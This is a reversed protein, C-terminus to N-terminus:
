VDRGEDMIVAEWNGSNSSNLAADLCAQTHLGDLSGAIESEEGRVAKIFAAIIGTVPHDSEPDIHGMNMRHTPGGKEQHILDHERGQLIRLVGETGYVVTSNDQEGYNTWSTYMTGFAGCDTQFISVANDDVDIMEGEPNKKDLTLLTSVVRTVRTDLLFRALDFKHTGLDGISGYGAEDHSFFWTASGLEAWTEPGAHKFNTVIAIVRGIQGERIMERAKIHAPIHRQNMGIKLLKGSRTEAQRMKHAEDLTMAMPKECLVHKGAELAAISHEAHFRNPTCVSVADIDDDSLLDEMSDYRKGGFQEALKDANEPHHDYYGVLEVDPHLHYEPAHRTAAIQGCGIIAVRTKAM